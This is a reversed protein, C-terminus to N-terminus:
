IEVVTASIAAFSPLITVQRLPSRDMFDCLARTMHVQLTVHCVSIIINRSGLAKSWWVQYFLPM